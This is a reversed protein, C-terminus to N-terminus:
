AHSPSAGRRPIGSRVRRSHLSGDLIQRGSSSVGCVRRSDLRSLSMGQSAPRLHGHWARGVKTFTSSSGRRSTRPRGKAIGSRAAVSMRVTRGPLLAGARQHHVAPVAGADTVPRQGHFWRHGDAVIGTKLELDSVSMSGIAAAAWRHRCGQATGRSRIRRGEAFASFVFGGPGGFGGAQQPGSMTGPGSTRTQHRQCISFAASGGLGFIAAAVVVAATAKGLRHARLALLLAVPISGVLVAWRIAPFWEPTRNAVRVVVGGYGGVDRGFRTASVVFGQAQRNRSQSGM